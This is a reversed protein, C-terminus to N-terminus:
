HDAGGDPGATPCSGGPCHVLGFTGAHTTTARAVGSTAAGAAPLQHWVGSAYAAVFVEVPHPFVAADYALELTAPAAGDFAATPPGLEYGPGSPADVRARRLTLTVPGSLAHPPVAVSLAELRLAGGAGDLTAREVRGDSEVFGGCASLSALVAVVLIRESRM